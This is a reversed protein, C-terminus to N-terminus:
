NRNPNLDYGVKTGIIGFVAAGLPGLIVYGIGAGFLGTGIANSRRIKIKKEKSLPVRKRGFWSRAASSTAIGKSRNCQICAPFLNNLHGTGGMARARSHDIEWAGKACPNAYNSFSLKKHCIHCYGDTKDYIISLTEDNIKM